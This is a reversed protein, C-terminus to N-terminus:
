LALIVQELADITIANSLSSIDHAVKTHTTQDQPAYFHYYYDAKVTAHIPVDIITCNPLKYATTAMTPYSFQSRKCLKLIFQTRGTGHQHALLAM